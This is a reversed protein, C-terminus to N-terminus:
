GILQYGAFGNAVWVRPAFGGSTKGPLLWITGTGKERALVDAVGDGDVDGVGVFTDYAPAVSGNAARLASGSDSGVLPVFAGNSSVFAAGQPSWAASGIQNFTRLSPPALQPAKFAKTGAGPFITLPGNGIAGMLDPYGDGTVDGVATLRTISKWGTGLSRPQGFKGNGLGPYLVLLSGGSTRVVVDNKGDRNWDGVDLVQTATPVKLNTPLPAGINTLGNNPVVVLHGAASRGVVDAAASGVMPALSPRKVGVLSRFPGYVQGLQGHGNGSLIRTLGSTDRVMVDPRGDGTLDGWGLLANVPTTSTAIRVPTALAAGGPKGALLYVSNGLLAILDPQRDGTIDGVGVVQTFPWTRKLVVPAGFAGRGEGPFLELYGTTRDVGVVDNKGDRNFDQVGVISRVNTFRRTAAIGLRTVHGLGDSTFVQAIGTRRYRALVDARGDGTVDGVGAILDMPSWDGSSVIPASYGLMGNTPVVQIAGSVSKVLLDPWSSGALSTRLPLALSPQPVAPKPATTPPLLGTPAPIMTRNVPDPPIQAQNEIAQAAVRISPIKAYLYRGPCETQNVDRHGNIAYLYRDKVWLHSADARINSLSLKWAFLRAYADLIAQPPEAIDFNGIASMAFSYENFGLTHAGVVARDVGGYRGEWIRGFRDVLFNYGIDSWGRSQTHYAYIGRILAPVQDPTYNNANVTHHIFGTEIVGYHLSSPDRLSENAGWQARSYILPKPAVTMASLAIRGGPTSGPDTAPAEESPQGGDGAVAGSGGLGATSEIPPASTAYQDGAPLRSTDIAAPQSTVKGTGPDIVALELDAPAAGTLTEARMQVQDVSGVVVPDTGPRTARGAEATGADPGHDDHYAAKTWGSWVGHSLTRIQVLIANEPLQTGSKWTVGVTGFGHVAAPPSLAALVLRGSTRAATRQSTRVTDVSRAGGAVKVERVTPTVPATAAPAEAVSLAPALSGAGIQPVRAEPAVIQLTMVGAASAAVTAVVATVMFQQCITVYRARSLRM